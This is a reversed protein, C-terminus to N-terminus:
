SDFKPAEGNQYRKLNEATIRLRGFQRSGHSRLVEYAQTYGFGLEEQLMRADYLPRTVSSKLRRELEDVKARLAAVEAPLKGLEELTM